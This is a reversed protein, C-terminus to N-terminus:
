KVVKKGNQIVIGKYNKGVRQGALNYMMADDNMFQSNHITFQSNHISSIGTTEGDASAITLRAGEAGLNHTLIARTSKLNTAAYPWNWFNGDSGIYYDYQKLNQGYDYFGTLTYDGFTMDDVTSKEVQVYLDLDALDVDKSPCIFVPTGAVIMQYYHRTMYIKTDVIDSIHLISTEDGFINRVATESLSFPLVITAWTNATFKRDMVPKAIHDYADALASIDTSNDTNEESIEIEAPITEEDARFQFGRVANNNHGFFFYTKGAKLEFMYRVFGGSLMVYGTGDTIGDGIGLEGAAAKIDDTHIAVPHINEGVAFNNDAIIKEYMAYIAENEAKTYFTNTEGNQKGGKDLFNDAELNDWDSGLRASSVAEIAEYSKGQEDVFYVPRRRIFQSCFENNSNYFLAGQQLAWITLTGDREPEFRVFDGQAPIKFTREAPTAAMTNIHKYENGSEDCVIGHNTISYDGVGDMAPGQGEEAITIHNWATNGWEERHGGGFTATIYPVAKPSNNAVSVVRKGSALIGNPTTEEVAEWLNNNALTFNMTTVSSSAEGDIAIAKATVSKFIGFPVGDFKIGHEASPESGDLTYYIDGQTAKLYIDTATTVEKTQAAAPYLTTQDNDLYFVPADLDTSWVYRSIAVESEVGDKVAIAYVTQTGSVPCKRQGEYLTSSTSVHPDDLSYYVIAGNSSRIEVDLKKETNYYRYATTTGDPIFTPKAVAEKKTYTEYVVRSLSGDVDTYCVAYVTVQENLALDAGVNTTIKNGKAILVGNNKVFENTISLDRAGNKVYYKVYNDADPSAITVSQSNAFNRTPPMITPVVDNPNIVQVTYTVEAPSSFAEYKNGSSQKSIYSDGVAEGGPYSVKVTILGTKTTQPITLEGTAADISVGEPPNGVLTYTLNGASSAASPINIDQKKSKNYYTGSIAPESFDYNGDGANDTVTIEYANEPAVALTTGYDFLFWVYDQESMYYYVKGNEITKKIQMSSNRRNYVETSFVGVSGNGKMVNPQSVLNINEYTNSTSFKGYIENEPNKDTANVTVPKTTYEHSANYWHDDNAAPDFTPKEAYEHATIHFTMNIFSGYKEMNGTEENKKYGAVTVWVYDSSGGNAGDRYVPMSYTYPYIKKSKDPSSKYSVTRTPESSSKNDYFFCVKDVKSYDVKMYITRGNPHEIVDMDEKKEAEMKHTFAPDYYFDVFDLKDNGADSIVNVTLTGSFSGSQVYNLADGKPTATVTIVASHGASATEASVQGTADVTIQSDGSTWTYTFDFYESYDINTDDDQGFKLLNGEQDTVEPIILDWNGAQISLNTLKLKPSVKGAYTYVATTIPSYYNNTGDHYVTVASIIVTKDAYASLDVTFSGVPAETTIAAVNTEAATGIKYYTTGGATNTTAITVSKDVQAEHTADNDGTAPTIVPASVTVTTGTKISYFYTPGSVKLRVTGNDTVTFTTTGKKKNTGTASSGSNVTANTPTLYYAGGSPMWEVTFETGATMNTLEMYRGNSKVFIRKNDEGYFYQIDANSLKSGSENGFLLGQTVNLETGATGGVFKDPNSWNQNKFYKDSTVDSLTSTERMAEIEDDSLTTFDWKTSTTSAAKVTMTYNATYTNSGQTYTATIKATGAAVAHVSGTVADVTAVAENNSTYTIETGSANTLTAVNTIDADGVTMTTTPSNFAISPPIASFTVTVTVEEAPMDFYYVNGSYKTVTGGTSLTVSETQYGSFPSTEVTVVEGSTAETVESNDVKVTFTGNETATKNINYATTSPIDGVEIQYICLSNSGSNYLYIDTADGEYDWTFVDDTSGSTCTFEKSPSGNFSGAALKLKRGSGSAYTYVTIRRNGAVKMRIYRYSSNGTGKTEINKTFSVGGISKASASVAMKYSSTGVLELNDNRVTSAIEGISWGSDTSFNWTKNSVQEIDTSGGGGSAEEYTVEIQTLTVGGGNNKVTVEQLGTSFAWTALLDGSGGNETITTGSPANTTSNFRKSNSDKTMVISTIVYGDDATLTFSYGSGGAYLGNTGKSFGNSSPLSLTIVGVKDATTGSKLNNDATFTATEAWLGQATTLMYIFFLFRLWKSRLQDDCRSVTRGLLLLHRM